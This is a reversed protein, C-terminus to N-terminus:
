QRFLRDIDAVIEPPLDFLLCHTNVEDGWNIYVCAFIDFEQASFYDYHKRQILRLENFLPEPDM